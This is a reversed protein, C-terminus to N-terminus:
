RPTSPALWSSTSPFLLWSAPLCTRSCLASPIPISVLSSKATLCNFGEVDYGCLVYGCVSCVYTCTYMHVFVWVMGYWVMGCWVVGCWVVGCWVVGCWVVGCWVVGCVCVCWVGQHQGLSHPHYGVAPPDPFMQSPPFPQHPAWRPPPLVSDPPLLCDTFM